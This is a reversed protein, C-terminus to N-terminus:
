DVQKSEPYNKKKSIFLAAMIMVFLGRNHTITSDSTSEIALFLLILIFGLYDKIHIKNSMWLRHGFKIFFAWFLIFIIIGVFGFEALVPYYTDAIFDPYAESLGLFTNIKYEAYTKSYYEASAFTAFSGLGSGFPIYDILIMGATLYLVPRAWMEKSRFVGHIFYIEIKEWSVLIMLLFALAIGISNYLNLKFKFGCKVAVVLTAVLVFFGYFKSRTSLIGISLLLIFLISDTISFRSCYLFLLASCTITTALRSPHVFFEKGMGLLFIIITAGCIIGSLVTLFRNQGKTLRPALILTCYFGLFPKIQIVADTLIAQPVNSDIIFSYIIQFLFYGFLIALHKWMYFAKRELYALIVFFVLFVAMLEDIFNIELYDYFFVGFIYGFVLFGFFIKNKSLILNELFSTFKKM